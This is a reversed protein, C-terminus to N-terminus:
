EEPEAASIHRPRQFATVDSKECRAHLDSLDAAVAHSWRPRIVPGNRIATTIRIKYLNWQRGVVSYCPSSKPWVGVLQRM